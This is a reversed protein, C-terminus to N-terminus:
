INDVMIFFFPPFRQKYAIEWSTPIQVTPTQTHYINSNQCQLPFLFCTSTRHDNSAHPLYIDLINM